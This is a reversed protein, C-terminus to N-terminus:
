GKEKMYRDYWEAYDAIADTQVKDQEEVIEQPSDTITSALTNHTFPWGVGLSVTNKVAGNKMRNPNVKLTHAFYKYIPRSSEALNPIGGNIYQKRGM